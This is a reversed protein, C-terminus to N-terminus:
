RFKEPNPLLWNQYESENFYGDKPLLKKTSLSTGRRITSYFTIGLLRGRERILQTKAGCMEAIQKVTKTKHYKTVTENIKKDLEVKWKLKLSIGYENARKIITSKSVGLESAIEMPSKDGAYKELGDLILKEIDSHM